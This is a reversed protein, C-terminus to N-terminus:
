VGIREWDNMDEDVEQVIQGKLKRSGNLCRNEQVRQEGKSGIIKGWVGAETGAQRPKAELRPKSTLHVRIGLKSDLGIRLVEEM